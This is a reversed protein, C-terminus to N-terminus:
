EVLTMRIRTRIQLWLPRPARIAAAAAAALPSWLQIEREKVLDSVMGPPIWLFELNPARARLLTKGRRCSVRGGSDGRGCNSYPENGPM